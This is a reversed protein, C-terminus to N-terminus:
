LCIDIIYAQGRQSAGALGRACDAVGVIGCATQGGRGVGATINGALGVRWASLDCSDAKIASRNCRIFVVGHSGGGGFCVFVAEARKVTVVSSLPENAELV